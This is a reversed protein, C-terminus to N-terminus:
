DIKTGHSRMCEEVLKTPAAQEVVGRVRDAGRQVTIRNSSVGSEIGRCWAEVDAMQERDHVQHVQLAVAV